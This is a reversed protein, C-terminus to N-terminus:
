LMYFKFNIVIDEKTYNKAKLACRNVHREFNKASIRAHGKDYPCQFSAAASAERDLLGELTWGFGALLENFHSEATYIFEDLKEIVVGDRLSHKELLKNVEDVCSALQSIM